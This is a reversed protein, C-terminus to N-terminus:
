IEIEFQKYIGWIESFAYGWKKFTCGLLFICAGMKPFYTGIKM